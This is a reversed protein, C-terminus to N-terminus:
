QELQNQKSVDVVNEYKQQTEDSTLDLNWLRLFPDDNRNLIARGINKRLISRDKNELIFHQKIRSQLQDVGTHTGVCM